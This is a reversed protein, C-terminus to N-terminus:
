ARVDTRSKKSIEGAIRWKASSFNRWIATFTVAFWVWQTRHYDDTVLIADFARHHECDVGTIRLRLNELLKSLVGDLGVVRERSIGSGLWFAYQGTQFGASFAKHPRDFLDLTEAISITSATPM